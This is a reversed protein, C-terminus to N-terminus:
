HSLILDILTQIYINNIHYHLKFVYVYDLLQESVEYNQNFIFSTHFRIIKLLIKEKEDNSLFSMFFKLSMFLYM